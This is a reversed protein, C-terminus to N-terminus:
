IAVRAREIVERIRTILSRQASIFVLSIVIAGVINASIDRIKPTDEVNAISPISRVILQIYYIAIADLILQLIILVILTFTSRKTISDPNEPFFLSEIIIGAALSLIFYEIVDQSLDIIVRVPNNSSIDM